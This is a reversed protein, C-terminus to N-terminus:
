TPSFVDIMVPRNEAQAQTLIEGLSLKSFQVGSAGTEELASEGKEGTSCAFVVLSVMIFIFIHKKM